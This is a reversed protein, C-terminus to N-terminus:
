KIHFMYKGSKDYVFKVDYLQKEPILLNSRTKKFNLKPMISDVVIKGDGALYNIYYEKKNDKILFEISNVRRKKLEM